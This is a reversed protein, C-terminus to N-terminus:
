RGGARWPSPIHAVRQPQDTVLRCLIPQYGHTEYAQTLVAFLDPGSAVVQDHLVAVYQGHHTGLLEPLLRAFARQEEALPAVSRVPEWTGFAPLDMTVVDGM